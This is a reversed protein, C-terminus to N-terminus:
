NAVAYITESNKPDVLLQVIKRPSPSALIEWSQGDDVSRYIQENTSVVIRAAGRPDVAIAIIPLADGPPIILPLAQFSSGGDRSRLLGYNSGLYLVGHEDMLWQQNSTAGSFERVAPTIDAWSQGRDQTRFISGKPTTVFRVATNNPNVLLRILGDSFWRVVRWKKGLDATELLGGQGTAISVARLARDYYVGFVGFREVPTFYIESFSRGADSTKLVRGKNKQYVAVFWEKNNGPNVAIDLVSATPELIKNSDKVEAWLDGRSKSVWLGRSDTALYLTEPDAPDQVLKNVKFAAISGAGGEVWSKQQWTKGGDDTRFVGTNEVAQEAGAPEESAAPTESEPRSRFVFPLIVILFVILLFIAAFIIVTARTSM